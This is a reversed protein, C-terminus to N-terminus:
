NSCENVCVLHVVEGSHQCTPVRLYCEEQKEGFTMPATLTKLAAIAQSTVTTRRDDFSQTQSLAQVTVFYAASCDTL